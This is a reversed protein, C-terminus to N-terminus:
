RLGKVFEKTDAAFKRMLELDYLSVDYKINLAMVDDGNVGPIPRPSKAIHYVQVDLSFHVDRLGPLFPVVLHTLDRFDLEPHATKIDALYGDVGAQFLFNINSRYAFATEADERTFYSHNKLLTYYQEQVSAAFAAPSLSLDVDFVLPFARVFLGAEREIPRKGRGATGTGLFLRTRGSFRALAHCFAALFLCNPSLRADKAISLLEATEFAAIVTKTGPGTQEAPDDAKISSGRLVVPGSYSSFKERFFDRSAAYEASKKNDELFNGEEMGLGQDSEPKKGYYASVLDRFFVDRTIGDWFIHAVAMLLYVRENTKYVEGIYLPGELFSPNLEPRKFFGSLSDKLREETTEIIRAPQATYNGKKWWPVGDEDLFLFAKLFSHANIADAFATALKKADTDPAFSLLAPFMCTIRDNKWSTYYSMQEASLRYRKETNM